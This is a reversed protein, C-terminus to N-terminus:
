NNTVEKKIWITKVYSVSAKESLKRSLVLLRLKYNENSIYGFDGKLSKDLTGATEM